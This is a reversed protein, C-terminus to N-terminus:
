QYFILAAQAYETSTTNLAKAALNAEQAFNAM